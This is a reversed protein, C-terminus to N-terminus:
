VGCVRGGAETLAAARLNDAVAGLKRSAAKLGVRRVESREGGRPLRGDTWDTRSRGARGRAGASRVSTKGLFANWAAGRQGGAGLYVICAFVGLPACGLLKLACRQHARAGQRWQDHGQGLSPHAAIGRSAAAHPLDAGLQAGDRVAGLCSRGTLDSASLGTWVLVLLFRCAARTPRLLLATLCRRLSSRSRQLPRSACRLVQSTASAPYQGWQRKCSPM